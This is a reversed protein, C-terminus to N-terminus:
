KLKKHPNIYSPTRKQIGQGEILDIKATNMWNQKKNNISNKNNDGESYKKININLIKPVQDSYGIPSTVQDSFCSGGSKYGAENDEGESMIPRIIDLSDVKKMIDNVNNESNLDLTGSELIYYMKTNRMMEEWERLENLEEDIYKLCSLISDQNTPINSYSIDDIKTSIM